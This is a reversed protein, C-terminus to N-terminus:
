KTKRYITELRETLYQKATFGPALLTDSNPHVFVPISIRDESSNAPNIVRHTTSKFVRNTALQLMDGANVVISNEEHPVDHWEGNIDRVQLGPASAAVLLTIINIDEHAASRVAGEQVELDRLAPYYISRLITTDSNQCVKAYNLDSGVGNIAHLLQGAIDGELISYLKETAVKPDPPLVENPRYHYFEKLDAKIAGVATEKGFQAYGMNPNSINVYGEKYSKASTFFERWGAQVDKILGFDVGHHTVVAFGTTILSDTFQKDFGKSRLNCVEVKM